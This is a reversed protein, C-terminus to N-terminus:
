PTEKAEYQWCAVTREGEFSFTAPDESRCKPTAFPCRPYFSCGAIALMLNPPSGEIPTLETNDLHLQPIARLLKRTYPHKPSTFLEKSRAMEVIAGAYMVLIRDCFGPILSLNHTIFIISMHLKTQIHKLLQLIQAQITVDLATTPEDAILIKPEAALALAIMVRQRMGGSIQHPYLQYCEKPDTIGVLKFLELVRETPSPLSKLPKQILNEQVQKGVKMTPNLFTLPDQFIMGIEKGRYERIEKESLELLDRKKYQISGSEVRSSELPNLRTIAKALVSKGSGSEGVIALSEGEFLDFSIGRLVLHRKATDTFSIKLNQVTLIKNM